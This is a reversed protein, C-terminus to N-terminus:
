TLVETRFVDNDHQFSLLAWGQTYYQSELIALLLVIHMNLISKDHRAIQELNDGNGHGYM